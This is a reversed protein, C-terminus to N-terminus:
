FLKVVAIGNRSLDREFSRIAHFREEWIRKTALSPPIKQKTLLEPQVRVVLTEEYYSDLIGIHRAIVEASVRLNVMFLLNAPFIATM